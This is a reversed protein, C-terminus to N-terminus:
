DPPVGASSETQLVFADTGMAQLGKLPQKEANIKKKLRVM